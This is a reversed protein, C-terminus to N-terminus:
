IRIPERAREVMHMEFEIYKELRRIPKTLQALKKDLDLLIAAKNEKPQRKYAKRVAMRMKVIWKRVGYTYDKEPAEDFNLKHKIQKVKKDDHFPHKLTINLEDIDPDEQKMFEIIRELLHFMADSFTNTVKSDIENILELSSPFKAKLVAIIQDIEKLLNLADEIDKTKEHQHHWPFNKIRDLLVEITEGSHRDFMKESM